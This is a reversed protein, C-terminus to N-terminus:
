KLGSKSSAMRSYFRNRMLYVLEGLYELPSPLRDQMARRSLEMGIAALVAEGVWMGWWPMQGASVQQYLAIHINYIALLLLIGLFYAGAKGSRKPEISLPLAYLMLVLISMPLLIRRHWEATAEPSDNTARYRTLEVIGMQLINGGNEPLKLMGMQGADYSVQYEKFSIARQTDGSGELRTGDLLKFHLYQGARSIEAKEALYLVATEYRKDELMFGMFRGESDTGEVYITFNDVSQNFRQPDFSPAAKAKKIAYIFSQFAKQGQPMWEMATYTLGLWLVLCAGILVRFIRAHSVGASRLADMESEQQLRIMVAQMAFFAAIPVTLVLFYPLISSLMLFMVSWSVDNKTVLDLVKLARGLLLVGIVISLSTLFPTLWLRFIYRDLVM